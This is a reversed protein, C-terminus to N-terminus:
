KYVNCLNNVQTHKEMSKKEGRLIKLLGSSNYFFFFFIKKSSKLKKTYTTYHLKKPPNFVTSNLLKKFSFISLKDCRCNLLNHAFSLVTVKNTPM